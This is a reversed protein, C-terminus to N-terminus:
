RTGPAASPKLDRFTFKKEFQDYPKGNLEAYPYVFFNVPPGSQPPSLTLDRGMSFRVRDPDLSGFLYDHRKPDQWAESIDVPAWGVGNLYFEAWCHYGPIDGQHASAPLPFGIEFRAPIKEARM